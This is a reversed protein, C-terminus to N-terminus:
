ADLRALAVALDPNNANLEDELHDLTPDSYVTWWPGRAAGDKPSAVTWGKPAEAGKYADPMPGAAPKVYTPALSCGALALLTGVCLSRRALDRMRPM